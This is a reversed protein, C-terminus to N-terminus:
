NSKSGASNEIPVVLPLTGAEKQSLLLNASAVDLKRVDLVAFSMAVGSQMFLKDGVRGCVRNSGDGSQVGITQDSNMQRSPPSITLLFPYGKTPSYVIVNVSTLPKWDELESVYFCGKQMGETNIRPVGADLGARDGQISQCGTLTALLLFISLFHRCM